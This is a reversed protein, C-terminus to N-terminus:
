VFIEDITVTPYSLRESKFDEEAMAIAQEETCNEYEFMIVGSFGVSAVVSPLKVTAKKGEQKCDNYFEERTMKM